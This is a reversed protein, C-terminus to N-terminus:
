LDERTAQPVKSWSDSIKVASNRVNKGTLRRFKSRSKGVLQWNGIYVMVIKKEEAM